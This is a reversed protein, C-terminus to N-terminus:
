RRTRHFIAPRGGRKTAAATADFCGAVSYDQARQDMCTFLQLPTSVEKSDSAEKTLWETGMFTATKDSGNSCVQKKGFEKLPFLKFNGAVFNKHLSGIRETDGKESNAIHKNWVVSHRLFQFEGTAKNAQAKSAATEEAPAAQQAVAAPPPDESPMMDKLYRAECSRCTVIFEAVKEISRVPWLKNQDEESLDPDATAGRLRQILETVEGRDPPTDRDSFSEQTQLVASISTINLQILRTVLDEQMDCAGIAVRLWSERDLVM